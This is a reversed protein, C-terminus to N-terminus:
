FNDHCNGRCPNYDIGRILPKDPEPASTHPMPQAQDPHSPKNALMLAHSRTRSLARAIVELNLLECHPSCKGVVGDHPILYLRGSESSFSYHLLSSVRIRMEANKM